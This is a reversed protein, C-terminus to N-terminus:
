KGKLEEVQAKLEKVAEILVAILGNYNVSKDHGVLEPYVLEVEQAIVGLSPLGTERWDFRVGNIMELTDLSHELPLINTKKNIDSTSNFITAGLTGTSPNFTLNNSVNALTFSGTNANAFTIFRTSDVIDLTLTAGSGSSAGGIAGWASNNRGEFSGTESNYRILGAEETPRGATNGVPLKVAGNSSARIIFDGLYDLRNSGATDFHVNAVKLISM